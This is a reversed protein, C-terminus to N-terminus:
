EGKEVKIENVVAGVIGDHFRIKINAGVAVAAADAIDVGNTSIKAYGRRLVALPNNAELYNSVERLRGELEQFKLLAGGRLAQYRLGASSGLAAVKHLVVSRLVNYARLVLERRTLVEPVVLEAAASPTPARLDAVFDILTWDTEHGVASVVPVKSAFTARAVRETNFASLDEKSGGGRAVIIVDVPAVSEHRVEGGFFELGEAIQAEAGTGKVAIPYVVIDVSPNRRTVVNVIDHIVAGTKSTVVGLRKVEQPIAKKVGADFFGEAQLRAKLKEFQLFLEGFGFAAVSSVVFSIKGAKNWYSVSGRVMVKSGNEIGKLKAPIYCVCPISAEADKLTFFVASGSQKIGDIDGVVEIGHLLEEAEFIQKIYNNLQSVTIAKDTVRV